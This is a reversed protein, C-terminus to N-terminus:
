YRGLYKRIPRVAPTTPQAATAQPVMEDPNPTIAPTIAPTPSTSQSTSPQPVLEDPNATIAPTPSVRLAPPSIRVVRSVSTGPVTRIALVAVAVTLGVIAIGAITLLARLHQYSSRLVVAPHQAPVPNTM